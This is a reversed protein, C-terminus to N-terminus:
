TIRTLDDLFDRTAEDESEERMSQLSHAIIIRERVMERLVASLQEVPAEGLGLRVLAKLTSPDEVGQYVGRLGHISVRKVEIAIRLYSHLVSWRQVAPVDCSPDLAWSVVTRSHRDLLLISEYLCRLEEDTPLHRNQHLDIDELRSVVAYFADIPIQSMASSEMSSRLAQLSATLARFSEGAAIKLDSM